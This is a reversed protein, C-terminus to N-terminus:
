IMLCPSFDCPVYRMPSFTYILDYPALHLPNPNFLKPKFDKKFKDIWKRFFAGTTNCYVGFSVFGDLGAFNTINFKRFLNGNWLSNSLAIM